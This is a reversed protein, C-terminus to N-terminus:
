APPLAIADPADQVEPELDLLEFVRDLGVAIDQARGWTRFLGVVSGAGSAFIGKWAHVDRADV